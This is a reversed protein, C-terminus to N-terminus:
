QAGHPMKFHNIPLFLLHNTFIDGEGSFSPSLSNLFQIVQRRYRSTPNYVLPLVDKESCRDEKTVNNSDYTTGDQLQTTSTINLVFLKSAFEQAPRPQLAVDENYAGRRM